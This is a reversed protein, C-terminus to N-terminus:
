RLTPVQRADVREAAANHRADDVKPYDFSGDAIGIAIEDYDPIVVGDQKKCAMLEAAALKPGGDEFFARVVPLEAKVGETM